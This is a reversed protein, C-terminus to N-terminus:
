QKVSLAQRYQAFQILARLMQRCEGVFHDLPKRPTANMFKRLAPAIGEKCLADFNPQDFFALVQSLTQVVHLGCSTGDTQISEDFGNILLPPAHSSVTPQGCMSLALLINSITEQVAEFHQWTNHLSDFVLNYNVELSEGDRLCVVLIWHGPPFLSAPINIVFCLCRWQPNFHYFSNIYQSMRNTLDDGVDVLLEERFKDDNATRITKRCYTSAKNSMRAYAGGLANSLSLPLYYCTRETWIQRMRMPAMLFTLVSIDVTRLLVGLSVNEYCDCMDLINMDIGWLRFVMENTESKLYLFPALEATQSSTLLPADIDHMMEDVLGHFMPDFASISQILTIIDNRKAPLVISAIRSLRNVKKVRKKPNAEM